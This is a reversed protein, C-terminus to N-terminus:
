PRVPIGLIRAMTEGYIKRRSPEPMGCAMANRARYPGCWRISSSRAEPQVEVRELASDRRPSHRQALQELQDQVEGISETSQPVSQVAQGPTFRFVVQSHSEWRHLQPQV